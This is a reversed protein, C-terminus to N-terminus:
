KFAGKIKEKVTRKEKKRGTQIEFLKEYLSKEENSLRTPTKITVIVIHEGRLSSNALSPIGAGKIRIKDGNQLGAPITINRIGDLTKIEITDGLAAQSPSIACETFVDMNERHYYESPKVHIVVYLDGAPGGNMGADGEQSLRMKSGNDVGQPIKISIKKEVNKRGLGKCDPCPSEIIVGKGHCKPCTIIQSINGLITRTSQQVQGRGACTPCTIPKTGAKAGTGHCTECQELHDFKIEKELGFVAEEFEIEIDLRLNEGRQPANPDVHRGGGFGFGGFFSEFIDNLDGFGNAFPGQSSFGASNLGEEGYQDYTARKNDDMLTEYAKGLEKFKQEADPEKNVDPHLKRAMKRFASKIEDKTADKSVGLIEYYDAM